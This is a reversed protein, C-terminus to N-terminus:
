RSNTYREKRDEGQVYKELYGPLVNQVLLSSLAVGMVNGLGRWLILTTSMVAQDEKPSFALTAINTAPSSIGYGTTPFFVAVTVGAVVAHHPLAAMAIGGALSVVTGVIILSKPRATALMIMGSAVGACTVGLSPAALRFGSVSPSDLHVVQFYLPANFIVANIGLNSFFNHFTLNGRPSSALLELPMVPKLARREVVVFVAGTVASLVLSVIIFPHSWPLNNGGLTLGLILFSIASTLFFSGALDFGRVVDWSSMTKENKALQPGLNGPTILVALAFICLMPPVQVGFTWRWGLKDCLFGGFAAGTAAGSGWFLNILAQYFGRIHIPVLDNTLIAGMAVVGGAGLGCAARALILGEISPAVACWISTSCFVALSFFYVPRRGLVDSLRAYLPQVAIYTVLFATSLWSASNSAKFYSTINPHSSAMMTSDFSAVKEASTYAPSEPLLLPKKLGFYQLLVGAYLFWFRKRSVGGLYPSEKRGMPPYDHHKSSDNDNEVLWRSSCSPTKVLQASQGSVQGAGDVLTAAELIAGTGNSEDEVFSSSTSARRPLLPTEEDSMYRSGSRSGRISPSAKDATTIASM